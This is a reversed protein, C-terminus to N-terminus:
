SDKNREACTNRVALGIKRKSEESIPAKHKPYNNKARIGRSQLAIESTTNTVICEFFSLFNLLRDKYNEVKDNIIRLLGNQKPKDM